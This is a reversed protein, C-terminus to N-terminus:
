LLLYKFPIGHLENKLYNVNSVYIKQSKYLMQNKKFIHLIYNKLSTNIISYYLCSLLLVKSYLLKLSNAGSIQIIPSTLINLISPHQIKKLLHTSTSCWSYWSLSHITTLLKEIIGSINLFESLICVDFKIIWINEPCVLTMDNESSIAHKKM